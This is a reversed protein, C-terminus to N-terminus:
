LMCIGGLVESKPGSNVWLHIPVHDTNVVASPPAAITIMAGDVDVLHPLMTKNVADNIQKKKEKYDKPLKQGAGSRRTYSLNMRKKAGYYLWNKLESVRGKNAFMPDIKRAERFIVGRSIRCGKQRLETLRARLKTEMQAVSNSVTNGRKSKLTATKSALCMKKESPSPEDLKPGCLLTGKTYLKCTDLVKAYIKACAKDGTHGNWYGHCNNRIARSIEAKDRKEKDIATVVAIRWDNTQQGSTAYLGFSGKKTTALEFATMSNAKKNNSSRKAYRASQAEMEAAAEADYRTKQRWLRIAEDCKKDYKIRCINTSINVSSAIVHMLITHMSASKYYMYTEHMYQIAFPYSVSWGM